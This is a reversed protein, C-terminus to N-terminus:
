KLFKLRNSLFKIATFGMHMLKEARKNRHQLLLPDGRLRAADREMMIEGAAEVIIVVSFCITAGSAGGILSQWIRNDVISGERVWFNSSGTRAARGKITDSVLTFGTM